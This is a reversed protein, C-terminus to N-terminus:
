RIFEFLREQQPIQTLISEGNRANVSCRKNFHLENSCIEWCFNISSLTGDAQLSARNYTAFYVIYAQQRRTDLIIDDLNRVFSNFNQGCICKSMAEMMTSHIKKSIEVCYDDFIRRYKEKLLQIDRNQEISHDSIIQQLCRYYESMEGRWYELDEVSGDRYKLDEDINIRCQIITPMVIDIELKVNEIIDFMKGLVSTSM